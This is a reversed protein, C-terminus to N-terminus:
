DRPSPSTYLLCNNGYANRVRDLEKAVLDLAENWEVEIFSDQGRPTTHRSGELWSKRIAPKLVRARGHLSGPINDNIPSAAPDEPHGKVALVQDNEVTAVGIGWHSATLEKRRM